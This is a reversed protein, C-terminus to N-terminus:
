SPPLAVQWYYEFISKMMKNHGNNIIEVGVKQQERWHYISVTDNYIVIQNALPLTDKPIFRHTYRDMFASNLTFPYKKDGPNLIERIKYKADVTQARHNEAWRREPVLDEITGSGFILTEKEAKLEHWLMQKFGQKGEYTNVVFRNKSPAKLEELKPILKEFVIRQSKLKEEKTTLEVELTMPDSAVLFTGRDDTRRSIL